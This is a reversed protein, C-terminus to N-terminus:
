NLLTSKGSGTAGVIGVMQGPQIEFSIDQLTPHEDNPYAFSVHDFKVSGSLEEDAVDEFVMAPETKLIENIRGISVFGRSAFMSMMGGMIIAMMIQMMYQIFSM